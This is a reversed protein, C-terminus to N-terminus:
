EYHLSETPQLRAARSAPLYGFSVGTLCSVSFAILVSLWSIPLRVQANPDVFTNILIPIGSVAAVAAFIGVLGGTGSVIVAEFLFQYLIESRRAGVAKRIGIERTRQTVTVLMINMIGIGSIALAILAIVLLVLTLAWSVNRAVALISGLNQVLYETGPRHRSKLVRTVEQTVLPVDEPRAAQAYLTRIQDIGHEQPYYRILSFPVLVSETQIESQGFTSVSERFVGIVTFSFDGVKLTQGVPDQFPFVVRALSPTLLCVKSHSAMDDNDFYRGQLVELNRIRDFGETVGVLSLGHVTGNAVVSSFIEHTGAVEVVQPVELRVAQLDAPTVEDALTTQEGTRRLEAYVLNSGVGEIQGMIYGKGTLAVTVVLVICGSGIIVGIMTLFTRLKNSRLAEVALKVTESHIM